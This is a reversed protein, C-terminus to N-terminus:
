AANTSKSGAMNRSDNVGIDFMLTTKYQIEGTKFVVNPGELMIGQSEKYQFGFEDGKMSTDVGWWYSTNNQIWPIALIEFDDVGAADNDASGPLTGRGPLRITKQLEKLRFHVSHKSRCIITDYNIDMLNGKPDRVLSGTRALAKLADYDADMNVTTGDTVRNNWNTGGDERTHAASIAAVGDGGSITASYNGNEDSVTYSTSFSNDLRDACLIERKRECASILSKVVRTLDRKKIGFKWMRKTVPLMKGFEVQTYTQDYGQVPVESTVVANETIRAAEGLGSLSSDKLYYETVGSVVNFYKDYVAKKELKSEKLYIDQIAVDTLDVAQGLTLPAAM